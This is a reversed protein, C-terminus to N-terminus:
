ALEQGRIVKGNIVTVLVASRVQLATDDEVCIKDSDEFCGHCVYVQYVHARLVGSCVLIAEVQATKPCMIGRRLEAQCMVFQEFPDM